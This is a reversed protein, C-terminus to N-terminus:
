GFNCCKAKGESQLIKWLCMLQKPSQYHATYYHDVCGSQYFHKSHLYEVPRSSNFQEVWMGMSVDEMKFLRLRGKDFEMMIFRAIDLSIIYGAGDAYPPYVEGPWEEHTVAWKGNRLPKHYYNIKGAYLSKEGDSSGVEETVADVRVFTDDDCKMIYKASINVGYECIALTKLVVLEYDDLYPVIVIDGFFEAEKELEENIGAKRHLAVFFRAVVASSRILLHQMWSKRVAMREAFHDGASIVGIFLTPPGHPLPRAKWTASMELHREPGVNPHFTPLGAVFVSHVDVDGYVYLLVADELDSGTRYAFSTVHRGDVSIHYGELGATITLVFFKDESFPYLWEMEVSKRRGMLKDLWMDAKSEESYIVDDRVWVECKVQGDVPSLTKCDYSCDVRSVISM